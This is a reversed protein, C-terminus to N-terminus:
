WRSPKRMSRSQIHQLGAPCPESHKWGPSGLRLGSQVEYRLILGDQAVTTARCRAEWVASCGEFFRVRRYRTRMVAAAARKGNSGEGAGTEVGQLHLAALGEAQATRLGELVRSMWPNGLWGRSQVSWRPGFGAVERARRPCHTFSDGHCDRGGRPPSFRVERHAEPGSKERQRFLPLGSVWSQAPASAGGCQRETMDCTPEVERCLAPQSETSTRV